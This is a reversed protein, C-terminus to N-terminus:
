EKRTLIGMSGLTIIAEHDVPRTAPEDGDGNGDVAVLYGGARGSLNLDVGRCSFASGWVSLEAGGYPAPTPRADGTAAFVLDAERVPGDSASLVVRLSRGDRAATLTLLRADVRYCASEPFRERMFREGSESNVYVSVPANIGTHVVIFAPFSGYDPNHIRAAEYRGPIHAFPAYFELTEGAALTIDTMPM